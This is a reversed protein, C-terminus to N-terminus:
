SQKRYLHAPYSERYHDINSTNFSMARPNSLGIWAEADFRYHAKLGFQSNNIFNNDSPRVINPLSRIYKATAWWFNGSYHKPFNSKETWEVGATDYGTNLAAVCDKWLEVNFYTMYKRWDTIHVHKRTRLRSAGKHHLYLVNFDDTSEDCFKKLENLTSLEFEEPTADHDILSVNPYNLTRDKLWNFNTIDYNCYIFFDANNILDSSFIDDIVEEAIYM